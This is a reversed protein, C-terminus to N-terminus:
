PTISPSSCGILVVINIVEYPSEIDKLFAMFTPIDVQANLNALALSCWAEFENQRPTNKASNERFIQAVKADEKATKTNNKQVEKGNAKKKNKNSQSITNSDLGPPPTADEWFGGSGNNTNVASSWPAPSSTVLSSSSGQHNQKSKPQPTAASNTINVAPTAVGISAAKSAWSLNSSASGWVSAQALGMEKQREKKQQREREQRKREESEEEALIEALSKGGNSPGNNNGVAATNAWNMGKGQNRRTEEQEHQMRHERLQQDEIEKQIKREREREEEMRQIEALSLSNEEPTHYTNSTMGSHHIGQENINTSHGGSKKAWPALKVASQLSEQRQKAAKEETLARERELMQQQEIQLRYLADAQARQQQEEEVSKTATIPVEPKIAGEMGPIYNESSIYEQPNTTNSIVKENKRGEKKGKDRKDKKNDKPKYVVNNSNSTIFDNKNLNSDINDNTTETRFSDITSINRTEHSSDNEYDQLTAQVTATSSLPPHNTYESGTLQSNQSVLRSIDQEQSPWPQQSEHKKNKYEHHNQLPKEDALGSRVQDWGGRSINEEENQQQQQLLLQQQQHLLQHEQQERTLAPNSTPPAAVAAAPMDWISRGMHPSDTATTGSLKSTETKDGPITRHDENVSLGVSQSPISSVQSAASPQDSQQLQNLLSKIPDYGGDNLNPMAGQQGGLLGGLAPQQPQPSRPQNGDPSGEGVHHTKLLPSSLGLGFGGLTSQTHQEPQSSSPLQQRSFPQIESQQQLTQQKSGLMAGIESGQLENQNGPARLSPSVSSQLQEKLLQQALIPNQSHQQQQFLSMNQMMKQMLQQQQQIAQATAAAQGALHQEIAAKDPGQHQQQIAFLRQQQLQLQQQLIAQQQLQQFIANHQERQRKEADQKQKELEEIDELPPPINPWPGPAFPVREYLKTMEILQIFRKDISRRLMLETPFYGAKFWDLMDSNSFPGQRNGQPDLYYWVTEQKQINQNNRTQDSPVLGGGPLVTEQSQQRIRNSNKLASPVSTPSTNPSNHSQQESVLPMTSTSSEDDNVLRDVLSDVLADDMEHSISQHKTHSSEKTSAVPFRNEPQLHKENASSIVERNQQRKSDERKKQQERQQLTNKRVDPPLDDVDVEEDEFRDEDDDLHNKENHQQKLYDPGMQGHLLRLDQRQRGRGRGRGVPKELDDENANHSSTVDEFFNDKAVNTNSM